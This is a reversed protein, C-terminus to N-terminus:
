EIQQRVTPPFRDLQLTRFTKELPLGSARLLRALRRQDRQTCEAQVVEYLFAEHTLTAKAAKLALDSFVAAMTPLKLTRLMARLEAQRNPMPTPAPPLPPLPAVLAGTPRDIRNSMSAERAPRAPRAPQRSSATM